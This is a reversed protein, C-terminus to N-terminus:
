DGAGDEDGEARTEIQSRLRAAFWRSLDEVSWQGLDKQRRAMDVESALFWALAMLAGERDQDPVKLLEALEDLAPLQPFVVIEQALIETIVSGDDMDRSQTLGVTLVETGARLLPLLDLYRDGYAVVSLFDANAPEKRPLTRARPVKIRFTVKPRGRRTLFVQANDCLFGRKIDINTM